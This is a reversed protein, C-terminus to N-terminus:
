IGQFSKEHKDYNQVIRNVKNELNLLLKTRLDNCNNLKKIEKFDNYKDVREHSYNDNM